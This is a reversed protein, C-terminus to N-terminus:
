KKELVVAYFSNGGCKVKKKEVSYCGIKKASLDINQLGMSLGSGIAKSIAEKQMWIDTPQLGNEEIYYKENSNTVRSVVRESIQKLEIDIGLLIESNTSVMIVLIDKSHSISIPYLRKLEGVNVYPKKFSDKILEIKRKFLFDFDSLYNTYNVKGIKSINYIKFYFYNNSIKIRQM